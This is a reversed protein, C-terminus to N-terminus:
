TRGSSYSTIVTVVLTAAGATAFVATAGLQGALAFIAAAAILGIALGRDYVAQASIPVTGRGAPETGSLGLAVMVVGVALATAVAAAELGLMFPVSILALGASLVVASRLGPSIVRLITM